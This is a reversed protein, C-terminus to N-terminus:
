ASNKLKTPIHKPLALSSKDHGTAAFTTKNAVVTVTREPKIQNADLVNSREIRCCRQKQKRKLLSAAGFAGLALISTMSSPEPVPTFTLNDISFRPQQCCQTVPTFSDNFKLVARKVPEGTYSFLNETFPYQSNSQSYTNVPTIGLSKLAPDFLEVSFGPTLPSYTSLTAGFQLTSVPATFDLTLTGAADGDLAPWNIYRLDPPTPLRPDPGDFDANTSNVGGVKFDFTVGKLSLQDVPQFPLEDFTITAAQATTGVGLFILSIFASGFTVIPLNKVSTTAM